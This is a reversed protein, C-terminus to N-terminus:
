TKAGAHFLTNRLVKSWEPGAIANNHAQKANSWSIQQQGGRARRDSICITVCRRGFTRFWSM